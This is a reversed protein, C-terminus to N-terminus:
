LHRYIDKRHAVRVVFILLMKERITYVIRYNGSRIRYLEEYGQLKNCGQPRPNQALERINNIIQRQIRKDQKRIFKAAEEAVKVQYM